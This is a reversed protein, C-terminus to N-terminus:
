PEPWPEPDGWLWWTGPVRGPAGTAPAIPSAQAVAGDTTVGSRGADGVSALQAASVTEIPVFTRPQRGAASGPVGASGTGRGPGVGVLRGGPPDVPQPAAIWCARM